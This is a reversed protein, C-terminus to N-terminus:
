SEDIETRPGYDTTLQLLRGFVPWSCSVDRNRTRLGHDTAIPLRIRVVSLPSSVVSLVGVGSVKKESRRPM